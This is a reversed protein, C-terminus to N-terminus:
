FNCDMSSSGHANCYGLATAGCRIASGVSSYSCVVTENGCTCVMLKGGMVNKMEDRSLTKMIKFKLKIICCNCVV